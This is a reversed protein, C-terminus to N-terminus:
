CCSRSGVGIIIDRLADGTVSVGKFVHGDTFFSRRKPTTTHFTYIEDNKRTSWGDFSLTLHSYNAIFAKFKLSWASVEQALHKPFFSSRDPVHFAMNLGHVFNVFFPSDMLSWPLACCIFMQFMLWEVHMQTKESITAKNMYHHITKQSPMEAEVDMAGSASTEGTEVHTSSPGSAVDVQLKTSHARSALNMTVEKHLTPFNKVLDQFLEILHIRGLILQYIYMVTKLM